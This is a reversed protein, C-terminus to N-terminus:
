FPIRQRAGSGVVTGLLGASCGLTVDLGRSQRIDLFQPSISVPMFPLPLAVFSVCPDLYFVILQGGGGM